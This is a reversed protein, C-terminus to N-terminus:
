KTSQTLNYAIRGFYVFVGINIARLKSVPLLPTASSLPIFATLSSIHRIGAIPIEKSIDSIRPGSTGCAVKAPVSIVAGVMEVMAMVDSFFQSHFSIDPISVAGSM